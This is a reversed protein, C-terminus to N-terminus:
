YPTYRQGRGRGRPMGYGQYGLYGYYDYGGGFGYGGPGYGYGGYGYGSWDNWGGKKLGGKPFGPEGPKPRAKGMKLNSGELTFKAEAISIRDAFDESSVTIFGFGRNKETEKGSDDKEKLFNIEEITGFKKPHRSKLYKKLVKPDFTDPLNGIHLKKVKFHGTGDDLKKPVARKIDLEKEKYKHPRALLCEELDDCKLFTIFGFLRDSKTDKRIVVSDSIEGHKSFLEKFEEDTTEKDLGGVFMKRMEEREDFEPPCAYEVDEEEDSEEKTSTPKEEPEESEEVLQNETIDQSKTAEEASM